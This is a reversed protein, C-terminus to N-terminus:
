SNKDVQKGAKVWGRIGAPMVRVDTYGAAEARKAAKPASRCKESGSYFVLTKSKDEPLESLEYSKADSLLIAGPLTGLEIRTDAGNADVPVAAKEDLLEAVRDIELPKLAAHPDSEAPEAPAQNEASETAAKETEAPTTETAETKNCAALGLVSFTILTALKM